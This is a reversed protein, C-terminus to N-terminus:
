TCKLNTYTCKLNTYTCKLCRRWFPLHRVIYMQLTTHIYTCTRNTHTCKLTTCTCTRNTYTCEFLLIHVRLVLIHANLLLVHVSLIPPRGRPITCPVHHMSRDRSVTRSAHLSRTVRYPICACPLVASSAAVSARRRPSNLTETLGRPEM